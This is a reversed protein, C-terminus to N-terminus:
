IHYSKKLLEAFKKKLRKLLEAFKKKKKEAVWCLIITKNAKNKPIFSFNLPFIPNHIKPIKKKKFKKNSNQKEQKKQSVLHPKPHKFLSIM